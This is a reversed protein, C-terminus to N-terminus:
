FLGTVLSFGRNSNGKVAVEQFSGRAAQSSADTM